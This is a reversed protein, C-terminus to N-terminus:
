KKRDIFIGGHQKVQEYYSNLASKKKCILELGSKLESAFNNMRRRCQHEVELAKEALKEFEQQLYRARGNAEEGEFRSDTVGSSYGGLGDILNIIGDKKDLIEALEQWGEPEGLLEKQRLTLKYYEKMLELRKTLLVHLQEDRKM